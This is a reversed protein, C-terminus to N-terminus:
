SLFFFVSAWMQLLVTINTAIMISMVIEYFYLEPINEFIDKKKRLTKDQAAFMMGM